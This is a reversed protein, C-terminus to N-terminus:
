FHWAVVPHAYKVHYSHVSIHWSMSAVCHLVRAVGMFTFQPATYWITAGTGPMRMMVLLVAFQIRPWQAAGPSAPTANVPVDNTDAGPLGHLWAPAAPQPGLGCTCFVLQATVHMDM